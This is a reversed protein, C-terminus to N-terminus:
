IDRKKWDLLGMLELPTFGENESSIELKGSEVVKFELKYIKNM